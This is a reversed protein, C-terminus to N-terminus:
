SVSYAMYDISAYTNWCREDCKGFKEVHDQSEQPDVCVAVQSSTLVVRKVSEVEACSKLVNLTGKVAPDILMEQEKGKPVVMAFPSATHFVIQCGKISELYSGEDLLDAKFFKISGPSADAADQLYKLRDKKSPDRIAAHITLGKDLLDKILM